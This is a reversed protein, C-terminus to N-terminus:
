EPRPPNSQSPPQSSGSSGRRSGQLAREVAAQKEIAVMGEGGEGFAAKLAEPGCIRRLAAWDEPSKGDTSFIPKPGGPFAKEYAADLLAQDAAIERTIADRDLEDRGVMGVALKAGLSVGDDSGGDRLWENDRIAQRLQDPSRNAKEALREAEAKRWKAEEADCCMCGKGNCWSCHRFGPM